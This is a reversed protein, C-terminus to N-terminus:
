LNKNPANTFKVTWPKGFGDHQALKVMIEAKKEASTDTSQAEAETFGLEAGLRGFPVETRFKDAICSRHSISAVAFAPDKDSRDAKPTRCYIQATERIKGRRSSKSIRCFVGDDIKKWTKKSM